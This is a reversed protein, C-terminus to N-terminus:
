SVRAPRMEFPAISITSSKPPRTRRVWADGLILRAASMDARWRLHVRKIAIPASLTVHLAGARDATTVVVGSNTWRDGGKGDLRVDGGDTQAVVADPPRRLDLFGAARTEGQNVGAVSFSPLAPGIASLATAGAFDRRSFHGADLNTV